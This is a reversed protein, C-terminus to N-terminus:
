KGGGVSGSLFRVKMNERIHRVGATIVIDGAKLGELVKVGKEDREGTKVPKGKATM